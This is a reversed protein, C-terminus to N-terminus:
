ASLTRHVLRQFHQIGNERSAILKGQHYFGSRLGRQVSECLVIDENQVQEGFARMGAVQAPDVGEAYFADYVQMTRHTDVPIVAGVVLNPPGPTIDITSAPWIYTSLGDRIGAELVDERADFYGTKKGERFGDSVIGRQLSFYDYETVVKYTDMDFLDAFSPHAVPCHYCENYNEVVVKWNAAIDYASRQHHRLANMDLGTAAVIAPLEALTAALPAADPDPNVFVLPGWTEVGLPVLPYDGKEFDPQETCRPAARLSGDLDWTWGHYHCQITKRRGSADLVLTSGRHRCVNVFARLAGATDRVVVIPVPGLQGTIFDGPTALQEAYGVYQWCRRFIREQELAYVDDRTYWTAPLTYGRRLAEGVQPDHTLALADALTVM